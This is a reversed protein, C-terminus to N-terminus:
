IDRQLKTIKEQVLEAVGDFDSFSYIQDRVKQLFDSTNKTWGKNTLLDLISFLLHDDYDECAAKIDHLKELLFPLDDKMSQIFDEERPQPKLSNIIIELKKLFVELNTHLYEINGQLSAQELEAALTAMEQEQINALASKM